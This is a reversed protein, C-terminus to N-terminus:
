YTNQLWKLTNLSESPILATIMQHILRRINKCTALSAENKLVDKIDGVNCHGNMQYQWQGDEVSILTNNPKSLDIGFGQLELWKIEFKRISLALRKNTHIDSLTQHYLDFLGESQPGDNSFKIILENIYMGAFVDAGLFHFGYLNEPKRMAHLTSQTKIKIDAELKQFPQISQYKMKTQDQGIVKLITDNSTLLTYLSQKERFPQKKLIYFQHMM